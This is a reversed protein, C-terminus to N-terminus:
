GRRYASIAYRGTFRRFIRKTPRTHKTPLNYGRRIVVGYLPACAGVRAYIVRRANRHQLIGYMESM